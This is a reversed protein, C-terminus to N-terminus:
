NTVRIYFTVRLKHLLYQITVGVYFNVRLVHQLYYSTVRIYFNVKLEQLLYFEYSTHLFWSTVQLEYSAVRLENTLFGCVFFHKAKWTGNSMRHFIIHFKIWLFRGIVNYQMYTWAVTDRLYRVSNQILEKMVSTVIMCFGTWQNVNWHILFKTM